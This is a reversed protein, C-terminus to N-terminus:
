SKKIFETGCKKCRIAIKGKGRPVRIKQKCNPCKYIHYQKLQKWASKKKQFFVRVKWELQLYRNNEASRKSINHSFMRFYVYIMIAFSLPYFFGGVAYSILLSILAIIILIQNFRDNGYRGVMFRQLKEKM